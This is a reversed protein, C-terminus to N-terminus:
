DELFRRAESLTESFSLRAVPVEKPFAGLLRSPLRSDLMVFVGKDHSSRILRGFAQKLRLRTLMDDYRGKGFLERRAKHLIDPRPWPTRDFVILRLAEGPVDIGDRVADTGLLCADKDARFIDVLTSTDFGDVHQAFLTLGASELPELLREHVARLRHIATFLGLAGGKAALFLDRYAGATAALDDRPLDRVIFVRARAAYDFPSPAFSRRAPFPLHSVGSRIEASQWSEDTPEGGEEIAVDRLTASTLLAGNARELVAEAFPITPDLWHRWFCVDLEFGDRREISFWDVFQEPTETELSRLMGIWGPLTVLARRELGRAASELRLAVNKDLDEAEDNLRHRLFGALAALPKALQKLAADLDAAAERLGEIPPDTQCELSFRDGGDASRTEVQARVRALFSEGPGQPHGDRIRTQWAAAPLATAARYVEDMRALAEKDEALLDGIRDELTRGRRGRRDERGRVWRRLEAMETGNLCASFAADAADFLHHAEDFVFRRREMQGSAMEDEAGGAEEVPNRPPRVTDLAHELAAHAIVLAHNAIVIDARHSKRVAREIFCKSYHPCASYVCEGRRDTLGGEGGRGIRASLWGPLDGGVMDGDRTGQVWRAVLAATVPSRLQAAQEISEQYNLLCLYNERGKRIVAKERKEAPDPYLRALEQDIQRQLNKTYTSVWATGQNLEAWLSAPALYGLTKGVGTGAEALVIPRESAREAPAFAAAATRAYAKQSPREEANTGTLLALREAVAEDPVSRALPLGRPAQEEWTPLDAWTDLGRLGPAVLKQRRTEDLSDPLWALAELVMGAWPWHVEELRRATRQASYPNPYRRDKLREVLRVAAEHLLGGATEPSPEHPYGLASLLGQPTPLCPEAPCVFGHLEILDFHGPHLPPLARGKAIRRATFGGHVLLLPEKTLRAMAEARDIEEIEGDASVLVAGAATPVLASPWGAAEPAAPDFAVSDSEESM